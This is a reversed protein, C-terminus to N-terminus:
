KRRMDNQQTSATEQRRKVAEDRLWELSENLTTLEFTFKQGSITYVNIIYTSNRIREMKSEVLAVIPFGCEGVSRNKDIPPLETDVDSIDDAM